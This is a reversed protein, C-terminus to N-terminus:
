EVPESVDDSTVIDGEAHYSIDTNSNGFDNLEDGECALPPPKSMYKFRGGDLGPGVSSWGGGAGGDSGPDDFLGYM